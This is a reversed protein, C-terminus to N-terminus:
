NAAATILTIAMAMLVPIIILLPGSIFKKAKVLGM